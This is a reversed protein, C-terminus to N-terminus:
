GYTFEGTGANVYFVGNVGDYLGPKLDSNRVCPIFHRVLTNGDWIKCSYLRMLAKAMNTSNSYAQWFLAIPVPTTYSASSLTAKLVEDLYLRNKNIYIKCPVEDTLSCSIDTYNSTGFQFTGTAGGGNLGFLFSRNINYACAGILGWWGPPNNSLKAFVLEASTNGSGTVGTNIYQSGSSQLYRCATYLGGSLVASLVVEVDATVNKIRLTGTEQQWTYGVGRSLETGGMFVTIKDPLTFNISATYNVTAERGKYLAGGGQSSCGFLTETLLCAEAAFLGTDQSMAAGCSGGANTRMLGM